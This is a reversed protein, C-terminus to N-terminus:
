PVNRIRRLEEHYRRVRKMREELGNLKELDLRLNRKAEASQLRVRGQYSAEIQRESRPMVKFPTFTASAAQAPTLSKATQRETVLRQLRMWDTGGPFFTPMFQQAVHGLLKGGKVWPKEFEYWLPRGAFDTGSRLESYLNIVPNQVLRGVFNQQFEGIDGWPLIYTLDLFQMRNKSDRFPLPMFYGAMVYNPLMRQLKEWEGESINMQNLASSQLYHFAIPYKALGIPNTVAAEALRPFVKFTFTAFPMLTMRLKNLAPSVDRYNLTWKMADDLADATRMGQKKNWMYKATKAWIEENQYYDAMKQGIKRVPGRSIWKHVWDDYRMPDFDTGLKHFSGALEYKVVGGELIGGGILDDIVEREGKTLYQGKSHKMLLSAADKYAKMGGPTYFPLGGLDNLIFNTLVNRAHTAPRWVTRTLKWRTLWKAYQKTWWGRLQSVQKMADYIDSRMYGGELPGWERGKVRVWQTAKEGPSLTMPEYVWERGGPVDMGRVKRFMALDKGKQYDVFWSPNKAVTTQLRRLLIYDSVDRMSRWTRYFADKIEGLESRVEAPLDKRQLFRDMKNKFTQVERPNYSTKTIRAAEQQLRVSEAYLPHGKTYRGYLRALYDHMHDMYQKEGIIGLDHAEIHQTRLIQRARRAHEQVTLYEKETLGLAERELNSFPSDMYRSWALKMKPGKLKDLTGFFVEDFKRHGVGREYVYYNFLRRFVEPMKSYPGKFAELSPIADSTRFTQSVRKAWEEGGIRQTTKWGAIADMARPVSERLNLGKETANVIDAWLLSATPMDGFWMEKAFRAMGPVVSMSALLAAAAFFHPEREKSVATVGALGSVGGIGKHLGDVLPELTRALYPRSKIAGALSNRLTANALVGAGSMGIKAFVEFPLLWAALKVFKQSFKMKDEDALELGLVSGLEDAWGLTFGRFAASEIPGLKEKLGKTNYIESLAELESKGEILREKGTLLHEGSVKRSAADWLVMFRNMGRTWYESESMHREPQNFYAEKFESWEKIAQKVVPSLEKLEDASLPPVSPIMMMPSGYSHKFYEYQNETPLQSVIESNELAQPATGRRLFPEIIPWSAYM